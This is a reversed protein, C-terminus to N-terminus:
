IEYYYTIKEGNVSADIYLLAVDAVNFWDGQGAYFMKGKLSGSTASVDLGGVAIIGTNTDMGQIWVRRCATSHSTIQQATGAAAITLTGSAVSKSADSKARGGGASIAAQMIAKYFVGQEDTLIVPLPNDRNIKDFSFTLRANAIKEIGKLLKEFQAVKMEKPMEPMKVEPKPFKIQKIAATITKVLEQKPFEIKPVEIPPIVPAAVQIRSPAIDVKPAEVKIQQVVQLMEEKTLRANAAINELLPTLITILDRGIASVIFKRDEDNRKRRIQEIQNDLAYSAGKLIDKTTPM